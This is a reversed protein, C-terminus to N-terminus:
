VEGTELISILKETQAAWAAAWAAAGAARAAGAAASAAALEEKTAEGNAFKEAIIIANKSREDILLHWVQRVCWCAFLRATRENWNEYESLLRVQRVVIKDNDDIRKGRYEAAFVRPGLRGLLDGARCLHYCNKCAVLEGEIEPMWDGPTWTGDENKTPLNYKGIGGNTPEGNEDLIKYLKEMITVGEAPPLM